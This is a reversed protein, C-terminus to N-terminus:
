INNRQIFRGRGLDWMVERRGLIPFKQVRKSLM